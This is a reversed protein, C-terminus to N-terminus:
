GTVGWKGPAGGGALGSLSVSYSPRGGRKAGMSTLYVRRAEELSALPLLEPAAGVCGLQGLFPSPLIEQRGAVLPYSLTLNGAAAQLLSWFARAERQAIEVPGPIPFSPPTILGPFSISVAQPFMGEGMGLVFVHDYKTGMMSIPSHLEVGGRGPAAPVTLMALLQSIEAGWRELTLIEAEPQSLDVLSEQLKYYAVAERAWRAARQRVQFTDLVNQLRQVWNDRRDTAPWSLISLDVGLTAWAAISDPHTARAKAWIEPPLGTSSFLGCLPHNLLRATAEFPLGANVTELLSRVWSGLRTGQMPIAYLARLPVDFEWAVDLLVPGYLQEDRVVIAMDKARVGDGLLGKVRALVGRM